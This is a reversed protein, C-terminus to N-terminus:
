AVWRMCGRDQLVGPLAKVPGDIGMAENASGNISTVVALMRTGGSVKGSSGM